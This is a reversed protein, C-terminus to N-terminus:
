FINQWIIILSSPYWLTLVKLLLIKSSLYTLKWNVKFFFVTKKLLSKFKPVQDPLPYFHARLKLKERIVNELRKEIQYLLKRNHKLLGRFNTSIMKPILM